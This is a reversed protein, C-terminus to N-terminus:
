AQPKMAHIFFVYGEEPNDSLSMKKSMESLDFVKTRLSEPMPCVGKENVIEFGYRVLMDRIEQVLYEKQHEPHIFEDPSQIRTLAGNPTDLCFSGGPALIRFAERCVIEGDAESIHEISEGSVILDMSATPIDALDAMSRYLYRIRVGDVVIERQTEAAETGGIRAEPPLDIITIEEPQHPYGMALLSGEEHNHAAGGLDLIRRAPPLHEQFLLMRMQHLAGIPSILNGICFQYEASAMISEIVEQRTIANRELLRLFYKSGTLDAARQLTVAYAHKLFVEDPVDEASALLVRQYIEAASQTAQASVEQAAENGVKWQTYEPSHVLSSILDRRSLTGARLGKLAAEYAAPDPDRQLLTQYATEIFIDHSIDPHPCAAVM